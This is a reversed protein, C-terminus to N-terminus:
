FRMQFNQFEDKYESWKVETESIYRRMDEKIEEIFKLILNRNGEFKVEVDGSYLNKVYGNLGLSNAIQRATYRFGVGQVMGKYLIYCSCLNEEM